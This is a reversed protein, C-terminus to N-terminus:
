GVVIAASWVGILQHYGVENSFINMPDNVLLVPMVGMPTPVWRMGRLVVVHGGNINTQISLIIPRGSRLTNYLTMPDAPPAISAVAGGYRTILGQIQWLHGTTFCAPNPQGCCIGPHAGNAVAVLECQHPPGGPNSRNLWHIIQEAVAVWCWVQTQQPINRVGLDVPPPLQAAASRGLTLALAVCFAMLPIKKVDAGVALSPM